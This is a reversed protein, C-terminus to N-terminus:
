FNNWIDKWSRYIGSVLSELAYESTERETRLWTFHRICYDRIIDYLPLLGDKVIEITVSNLWEEKSLKGDRTIFVERYEPKNYICEGPMNNKKCISEERILSKELISFDEVM